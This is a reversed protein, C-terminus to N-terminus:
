ENVLDNVPKRIPCPRHLPISEHVTSDESLKAFRFASGLGVDGPTYSDRGCMQGPQLLILAAQIELIKDADGLGEALLRAIQEGVVDAIDAMEFRENITQCGEVRLEERADGRDDSFNHEEGLFHGLQRSSGWSSAACFCLRGNLPFGVSLETESLAV